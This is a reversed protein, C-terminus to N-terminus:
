TFSTFIKCCYNTFLKFNTHPSNFALTVWCFLQVQCAEEYTEYSGYLHYVVEKKCNKDDNKYYIRIQYM